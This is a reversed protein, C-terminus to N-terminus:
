EEKPVGVVFYRLEGPRFWREFDVEKACVDGGELCSNFLSLLFSSHCVLGLKEKEDKMM